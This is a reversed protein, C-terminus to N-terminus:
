HPSPNQNQAGGAPPKSAPAPASGGTLQALRDREQRALKGAVSGEQTLDV